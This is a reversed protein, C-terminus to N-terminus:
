VEKIGYLTKIVKMVEPLELAVAMIDYQSHWGYPWEFHCINITKQLVEAAELAAPSPIPPPQLSM